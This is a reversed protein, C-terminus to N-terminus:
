EDEDEGDFLFVMFHEYVDQLKEEDDISEFEGFALSDGICAITRFIGCYGGDSVLHELPKENQSGFLQQWEMTTKEGRGSTKGPTIM